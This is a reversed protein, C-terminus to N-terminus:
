RCPNVLSRLDGGYSVANKLTRVLQFDTVKPFTPIYKMSQWYSEGIVEGYYFKDIPIVKVINDLDKISIHKVADFRFGDIGLDMLKEMYEHQQQQVYPLDIRLDPLGEPDNDSWLWGNEVEYPDNYDIIM